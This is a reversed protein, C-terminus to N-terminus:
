AFSLKFEDVGVFTKSWQPTQFCSISFDASHVIKTLGCRISAPQIELQGM